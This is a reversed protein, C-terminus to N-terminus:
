LRLSRALLRQHGSGFASVRIAVARDFGAGLMPLVAAIMTLVGVPHRLQTAATRMRCAAGGLGWRATTVCRSQARFYFRRMFIASLTVQASRIEVKLAAACVGCADTRRIMSLGWNLVALVNM